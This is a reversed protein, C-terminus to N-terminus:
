SRHDSTKDRSYQFIVTSNVEQKDTKCIYVFITLERVASEFGTLCSTLPATISGGKTNWPKVVTSYLTQLRSSMNSINKVPFFVNRSHDLM